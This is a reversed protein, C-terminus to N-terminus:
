KNDLVALQLRTIKKVVLNIAELPDCIKNHPQDVLIAVQNPESAYLLLTSVKESLPVEEEQRHMLSVIVM